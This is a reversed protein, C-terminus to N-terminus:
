PDAPDVSRNPAAVVRALVVLPLWLPSEPCKEFYAPGRPNGTRPLARVASTKSLRVLVDMVLSHTFGTRRSLEAALLAGDEAELLLVIKALKENGSISASM